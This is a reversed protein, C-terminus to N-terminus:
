RPRSEEPASAALNPRELEFWPHLKLWQLLRSEDLALSAPAVLVLNSQLQRQVREFFEITEDIGVTRPFALFAWEGRGRIIWQLNFRVPRGAALELRLTESSVETQEWFALVARAKRCRVRLRDYERAFWSEVRKPAEREANGMAGPAQLGWEGLYRTVTWRSLDSSMQRACLLQATRLTWLEGELGLQDPRQTLMQRVTHQMQTQLVERIPPRGRRRELLGSKGDTDFREIWNSVSTRSAGVLSAAQSQSYGAQIAEIARLRRAELKRKKSPRQTSSTM